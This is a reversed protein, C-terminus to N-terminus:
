TKEGVGAGLALAVQATFVESPWAGTVCANVDEFKETGIHVVYVLTDGVTKGVGTYSRPVKEIRIRGAKQLDTLWKARIGTRIMADMYEADVERGDAKAVASMGARMEDITQQSLAVATKGHRYRRPAARVRFDRRM